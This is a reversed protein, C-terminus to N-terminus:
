VELRFQEADGHLIASCGSAVMLEHVLDGGEGFNKFGVGGVGEGAVSEGHLVVGLSVGVEREGLEGNEDVM